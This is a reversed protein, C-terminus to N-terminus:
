FATFDLQNLTNVSCLSGFCPAYTERMKTDIVALEDETIICQRLMSRAVYLTAQYLRESEFREESM